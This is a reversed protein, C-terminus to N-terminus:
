PHLRALALAIALAVVSWSLAALAGELPGLITAASLDSVTGDTAVVTGSVSTTRRRLRRAPTSLRRQASALFYAAAAAFLAPARITGHQAAYGTLVPFAGWSAAFMADSHLRAGFLELNYSLALAVGVVIFITLVWGVQVVGVIGFAVAGGLGGVAAAVLMWDPIATRLPRGHLEDLAHAAIGVALFFALVSAILRSVRVPGTLCAGIVVYALHWLTYPPHLLTWWDKVWRRRLFRPDAYYAPRLEAAGPDGDTM